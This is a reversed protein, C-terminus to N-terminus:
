DNNIHSIGCRNAFAKYLADYKQEYVDLKSNLITNQKSLERFDSVLKNIPENQRFSVMFGIILGFAFWIIYILPKNRMIFLKKVGM